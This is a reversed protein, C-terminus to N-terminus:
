GIGLPFVNLNAKGNYSISCHIDVGMKVTMLIM